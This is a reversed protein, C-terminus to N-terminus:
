FDVIKITAFLAFDCYTTFNAYIHIKENISLIGIDLENSINESIIDTKYCSIKGCVCIATLICHNSILECDDVVITLQCQIQYVYDNNLIFEPSIDIKGENSQETVFFLHEHKNLLNNNDSNKEM